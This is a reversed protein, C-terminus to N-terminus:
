EINLSNNSCSFGCSTKPPPTRSQESEVTSIRKEAERMRKQIDHVLDLVSELVAASTKSMELLKYVPANTTSLGDELEPVDLEDMQSQVEKVRREQVLRTLSANEM